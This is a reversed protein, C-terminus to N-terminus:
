KQLCSFVRGASAGATTPLQLCAVWGMQAAETQKQLEAICSGGVEEVFLTTIPSM